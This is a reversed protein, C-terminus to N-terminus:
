LPGATHKESIPVYICCCLVNVQTPAVQLRPPARLPPPPSPPSIPESSRLKLLSPKGTTQSHVRMPPPSLTKFGKHKAQGDEWCEPFHFSSALKGWGPSGPWSPGSSPGVICVLASSSPGPRDTYVRPRSESAQCVPSRVAETDWVRPGPDTKEGWVRTQRLQQGSTKRLSHSESM